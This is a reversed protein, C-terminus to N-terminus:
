TLQGRVVICVLVSPSTAACTTVPIVPMTAFCNGASRNTMAVVTVTVACAHELEASGLGAHEGEDRHKIPSNCWRSVGQNRQM